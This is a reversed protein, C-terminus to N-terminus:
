PASGTDGDGTIAITGSTAPLTLTYQGALPTDSSWIPNSRNSSGIATAGIMINTNGLGLPSASHQMKPEPLAAVSRDAGDPDVLHQPTDWQEWALAAVALLAAIALSRIM